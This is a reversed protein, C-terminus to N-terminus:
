RRREQLQDLAPGYDLWHGWACQARQLPELVSTHDISAGCGRAPCRGFDLLFRALPERGPTVPAPESPLPLRYVRAHGVFPIREVHPLVPPAPPRLVAAM